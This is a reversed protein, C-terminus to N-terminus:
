YPYREIIIAKNETGKKTYLVCSEKQGNVLYKKRTEM